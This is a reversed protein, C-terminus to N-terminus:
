NKTSGNLHEMQKGVTLIIRPRGEPLRGALTPIRFVCKEMSMGHAIIMFDCENSPM